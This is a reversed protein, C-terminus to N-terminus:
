SGTSWTLKRLIVFVSVTKTRTKAGGQLGITATVQPAHTHNKLPPNQDQQEGAEGAPCDEDVSFGEQKSDFLTWFHGPWNVQSKKEVCAEQHISYSIVYASKSIHRCM